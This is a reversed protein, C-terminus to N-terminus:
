RVGKEPIVPEGDERRRWHVGWRDLEELVLRVLVPVVAQVSPTLDLGYSSIDEPQVGFLIVSPPVRGLIEALQLVGALDLEHSSLRPTNEHLIEAPTFRFLTGPPHSTQVADIVILHEAGEILPLLGLGGTGGDVLHVQDEFLYHAQLERLVHIGSGEDRLLLNGVGLIVVKEKM